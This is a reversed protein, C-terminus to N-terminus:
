AWAWSGEDEDESVGGNEAHPVHAACYSEWGICKANVRWTEIGRLMLKAYSAVLLRREVDRLRSGCVSRWANPPASGCM